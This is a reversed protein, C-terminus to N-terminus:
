EDSAYRPLSGYRKWESAKCNSNPCSWGETSSKKDLRIAVRKGNGLCAPCFYEGTTKNEYYNWDKNYELGEKIDKPPVQIIEMKNELSSVREELKMVRSILTFINRLWVGISKLWDM